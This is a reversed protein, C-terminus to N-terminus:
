CLLSHITRFKMALEPKESTRWPWSRNRYCLNSPYEETANEYTIVKGAGEDSLDIRAYIITERRPM